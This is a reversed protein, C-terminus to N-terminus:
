KKTLRRDVPFNDALLTVDFFHGFNFDLRQQATTKTNAKYHSVTSIM